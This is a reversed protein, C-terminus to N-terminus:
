MEVTTAQCCHLGFLLFFKTKSCSLSSGRISLHKKKHADPLGRHNFLCGKNFPLYNLLGQDKAMKNTSRSM